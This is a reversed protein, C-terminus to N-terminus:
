RPHVPHVTNVPHSTYIAIYIYIYLAIYHSRNSFSVSIGFQLGLVFGHKNYCMSHLRFVDLALRDLERHCVIVLDVGQYTEWANM